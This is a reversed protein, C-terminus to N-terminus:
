RHMSAKLAGITSKDLVLAAPRAAFPDFDEPRFPRGKKPDRNLNAMLAMMSSARAWRDRQAGDAMWLLERLTFPRPDLPM